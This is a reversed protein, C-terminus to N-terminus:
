VPFVYADGKSLHPLAYKTIAIMQLINSQFVDEVKELDIQSFDSCSYQKSANNVLVNLGGHSSSATLDKNLAIEIISLVYQKVHEEVAQRCFEYKRLDGPLLLCTQNEAEVMKKTDEADGQEQPLYVITIDAGERAMLVAVSRGIGSSKRTLMVESQRSRPLCSTDHGSYFKSAAPSLSKRIKLSIRASM